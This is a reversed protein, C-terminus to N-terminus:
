KPQAMELPERDDVVAIEGTGRRVLHSALTITRAPLEPQAIRDIALKAAQRGVEEPDRVLATVHLGSSLESEDLAIFALKRNNEIRDLLVGTSIGLNLALVATPPSALNMLDAMTSRAQAPTILNEVVLDPEEKLGRNALASRFGGLRQKARFSSNQGALAAIRRHGLDLLQNTAEEVGRDDDTMVVDADLGGAPRGVLIVPTGFLHGPSLFERENGDPMVMLASVRRDIMARALEPERTPDEDTSGILLQLGANRLEKEAGAAVGAQYMNTFTSMVLGVAGARNGHRLDRAMPNPRYGLQEVAAMVRARTEPIVKESDQLVRTVTATSIGALVAVDKVTVRHQGTGAM